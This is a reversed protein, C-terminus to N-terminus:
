RSTHAVSQCSSFQWDASMFIAVLNAGGSVSAQKLSEPQTYTFADLMAPSFLPIRSGNASDDVVRDHAFSVEQVM